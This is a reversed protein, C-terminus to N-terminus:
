DRTEDGFRAELVGVIEDSAHGDGYFDPHESPIAVRRAAEIIANTDTGALRNWGSEVTEVWETEERLTVCPIGFFYAEKQM